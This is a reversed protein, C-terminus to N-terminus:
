FGGGLYSKPFIREDIGLRAERARRRQENFQAEQQQMLANKSAYEALTEIQEGAMGSGAANPDFGYPIVPIKQINPNLIGDVAEAADLEDQIAKLESGSPGGFGTGFPENSAERANTLGELTVNGEPTLNPNNHHALLQIGQDDETLATGGLIGEVDEAFANPDGTLKSSLWAALAQQDEETNGFGGAALRL